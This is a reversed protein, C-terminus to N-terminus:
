PAVKSFIAVIALQNWLTWPPWCLSTILAPFGSARDPAWM